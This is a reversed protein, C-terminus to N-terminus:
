YAKKYSPVAESKAPEEPAWLRYSLNAFVKFGKTVSARDTGLLPTGGSADASVEQFGWVKLAATGFDYGVLGGLAWINFRNSNVVQNYFTSSTDNGVQGAYYAVPGLTWKGLQKTAAFEAHLVDGSQYGTYTNKTNFERSVLATFNWGDKLYSVLLEPQFTWWPNGISALGNTGSIAGDPTHVGLGTKVFFGSDGFKWSLEVPVVYTNKLGAKMKNIPAGFDAMSEAQVLVANYTAGLFQWGPVWLFGAAAVAVHVPTATGAISPAGPGVLNSQYTFAQDFMYVGPPPTAATAGGITIGPMQAWGPYGAESAYSSTSASM